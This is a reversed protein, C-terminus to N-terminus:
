HVVVEVGRTTDEGDKVPQFHLIEILWKVGGANVERSCVGCVAGVPCIACVGVAGIAGRLLGITILVGAKKSGGFCSGDIDGVADFAERHRVLFM